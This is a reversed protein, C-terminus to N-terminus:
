VTISNVLATLRPVTPNWNELNSKLTAVAQPIYAEFGTKGKQRSLFGFAGLMQLNRTLSCADYGAYFFDCSIPVIKSIADFAYKLLHSRVTDELAVYPDILLSALDYQFPGTRGGQFDIFYCKGANVMINRSQMDRHMFGWVAHELAAKALLTYEPLLDDFHIDLGMYANLFADTFYRCEKELILDINYRASQYTWAPDFGASGHICLRVLDTIVKKYWNLIDNDNRHALITDQLSTNGLDEVFVLGSFPDSLIIKPVPIRKEYLHRGIAIFADIESVRNIDEPRRLGHDALILSNESSTLRYWARDSGDGKLPEYRIPATPFHSFAQKFAAPATRDLVAQRYREPSGIDKWYFKEPKYARLKLRCQLMRSYADISSYFRNEPIFDLVSPDVAQIGTFTVHQLNTTSTGGESLSFSVIDFKEDVAVTNFEPDDCIVLTAPHPHTLHFRYLAAFDIDAVIDGNVVLFPDNAWVHALSKMAGGTGLIEPEYHATVPVPYRRHQLFREIEGHLHHTNIVITDCGAGILAQVTIDIIPRGDGIPFLPKPITDTYPRLRTGFGAALILAKM